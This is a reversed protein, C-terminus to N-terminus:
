GAIMLAMRESGQGACAPARMAMGYFREVRGRRSARGRCPTLLIGEPRLVGRHCQRGDKECRSQVNKKDGPPRESV